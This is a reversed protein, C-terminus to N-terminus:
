RRVVHLGALHGNFKGIVEERSTVQFAHAGFIPELCRALTGKGAGKAGILVLAVEAQQLRTKFEGLSGASSTIRLSRMAAQSSMTRYARPDIGLRRAEGRRGLRALPEPMRQDVKPGAPLFTVGRYQRRDRHNLWWQGIPIPSGGRGGPVDMSIHRNSYRLLFSEKAQFVVVLRSPDIPSPEWSAIVTKGGVSDIIAHHENMIALAQAWGSISPLM